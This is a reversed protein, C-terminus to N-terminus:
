HGSHPTLIDNSGAILAMFGIFGFPVLLGGFAAQDSRTNSEIARAVRRIETNRGWVGETRVSETPVVVASRGGVM